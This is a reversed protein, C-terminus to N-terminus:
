GGSKLTSSMWVFVNGNGSAIVDLGLTDRARVFFHQTAPGVLPVANATTSSAAASDAADITRYYLTLGTPVVLTFYAGGRVFSAYVDTWLIKSAAAAVAVVALKNPSGSTRCPGILEDASQSAPASPYM